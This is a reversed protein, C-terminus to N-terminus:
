GAKIAALANNRAMRNMDDGLRNLNTMSEVHRNYDFMKAELANLREVESKLKSAQKSDNNKQKMEMIYKQLAQNQKAVEEM